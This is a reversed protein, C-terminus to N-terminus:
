IQEFYAVMKVRMSADPLAGKLAMMNDKMHNLQSTAPIACTVAPHSIIFKLFFQAWTKCEIESAWSPLSHGRVRAFLGGGQFPRNIVAKVGKEAALPLLYQEAERDMINYTFQVYDLPEHQMIKILEAHRRGHSTTVGYNKIRGAAQWDRLTPLHTQWDLLNHVYMLDMQGQGWLAISQEMQEVGLQKGPTWVKTAAFLAEYQSKSLVKGLLAQAFGYMPSSDIMCGGATFFANLIAKFHNLDATAPDHDFTIWTGMGIKPLEDITKADVSTLTGNAALLWPLQSM